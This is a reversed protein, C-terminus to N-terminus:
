KPRCNRMGNVLFNTGNDLTSAIEKRWCNMADIGGRERFVEYIWTDNFYNNRYFDAPDNLLTVISIKKPSKAKKLAVHLSVLLNLASSPGGDLGRANFERLGAATAIDPIKVAEDIVSPILSTTEGYLVPEVDYGYGIGAVGPKKWLHQGSENTFRDHIVYDYFLSFESDALVIKTPLNYRDVYRGVSSITGGTGASHVFYDVDKRKVSKDDNIQALVEHFVNSSEYKYDGSEFFEEAKEANGFQNVYFGKNKEAEEKARTNRLSVDTKIIKGHNKEINDIKAQELDNAVVAYYPIGIANYMYAESAGTNGSTSDYTSTNQNVLGDVVSWLALAWVFRHKLSRTPTSTENKIFLDVNPLGKVPYKILPTHGIKEREEWLRDIAWTRWDQEGKLLHEQDAPAESLIDGTSFQFFWIFIFYFIFM